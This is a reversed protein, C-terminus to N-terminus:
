FKFSGIFSESGDIDYFITTLFVWYILTILLIILGILLFSLLWVNKVKKILYYIMLFTITPIIGLVIGVQLIIKIIHEFNADVTHLTTFWYSAGITSLIFIILSFLVLKLNKKM